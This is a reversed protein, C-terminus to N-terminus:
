DRLRTHHYQPLISVVAELKTRDADDLSVRMVQDLLACSEGYARIADGFNQRNDFDVANHAVHLAKKLISKTSSHNSAM